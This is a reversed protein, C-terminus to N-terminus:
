YIIINLNMHTKFIKPSKLIVDIYTGEKLPHLTLNTLRTTIISKM